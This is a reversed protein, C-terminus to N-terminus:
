KHWIHQMLYWALRLLLLLGYILLTQVVVEGLSTLLEHWPAAYKAIIALNLVFSVCFCIILIIAERRRVERSFLKSWM